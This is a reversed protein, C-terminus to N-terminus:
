GASDRLMEWLSEVHAQRTFTGGIAVRLVFKPPNSPREVDPLTTHSLYAKGSANLRDMLARTRDNLAAALAPTSRDGHVSLCILPSCAPRPAALEFRPESRVREELWAAWALHARIHSRLGELGYHRIVLWLKLSRFRRGLPVQWDRYDIVAGANSAANRLYEPTVSLAGILAERDRTWFLGCDFSTLLWKHPNFCLSDLREAGALAGRHEPCIFAAGGMAADAHLWVPHPSGAADIAEGVARLDDFAMVGTTGLTASVMAPRMGAALDQRIQDRLKVPDISWDARTAIQRVRPTGDPNVVGAIMAAKVV